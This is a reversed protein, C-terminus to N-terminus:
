HVHLDDSGHAGRPTTSIWYSRSEETVEVYDGDIFKAIFGHTSYEGINDCKLQLYLIDLKTCKIMHYDCSKHM